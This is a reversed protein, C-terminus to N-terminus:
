AEQDGVVATSPGCCFSLEGPQDAASFELDNLFDDVAQVVRWPCQDAQQRTLVEALADDTCSLIGALGCRRRDLPCDPAQAVRRIPPLRIRFERGGAGRGRARALVSVGSRSEAM